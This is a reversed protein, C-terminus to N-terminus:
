PRAILKGTTTRAELARHAEAIEDFRYVDGLVEEPTTGLPLGLSADNGSTTATSRVVTRLQSSSKRIM